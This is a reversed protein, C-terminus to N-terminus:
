TNQALTDLSPTLDVSPSTRTLPIAVVVRQQLVIVEVKNELVIITDVMCDFTKFSVNPPAGEVSLM